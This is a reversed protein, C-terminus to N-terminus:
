PRLGVNSLPRRKEFCIEEIKGAIEVALRDLNEKGAPDSGLRFEIRGFREDPLHLQILRPCFLDQLGLRRSFGCRNRQAPDVPLPAL